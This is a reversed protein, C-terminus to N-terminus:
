KHPVQQEFVKRFMDPESIAYFICRDCIGTEANMYAPASAITRWKRPKMKVTDPGILLCTHHDADTVFKYTTISKFPIEKLMEDYGWLIRKNTIYFHQKRM